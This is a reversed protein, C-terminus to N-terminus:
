PLSVLVVKRAAVQNVSSKVRLLMAPLISPLVYMQNAAPSTIKVPNGDTGIVAGWTDGDDISTEFSLDAATWASEIWVGVVVEGGIDAMDSVNAGLAISLERFIRPDSVVRGSNKALVTTTGAM